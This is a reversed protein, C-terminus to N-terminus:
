CAAAQSLSERYRARLIGEAMNYSSGDPHVDVLKAVFDTDVADSSAYLVVKVPGTAELEESLFDSTYLSSTAGAKSRASTWRAPPHPRAAATTAAWRPFRTTPITASAIRREVRRDAEGLTLRGDGRSSNAAGGSAFYLPRYEREPWRTSASTCGSTGAWSSCSSPLSARM